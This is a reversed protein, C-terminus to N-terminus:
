HVKLMRESGNTYYGKLEYAHTINFVIFSLRPVFGGVDWM